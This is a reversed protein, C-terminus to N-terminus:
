RTAPPAVKMQGECCVYYTGDNQECMMPLLEQSIMENFLKLAAYDNDAVHKHGRPLCISCQSREHNVINVGLVTERVPIKAGSVNFFLGASLCIDLSMCVLAM